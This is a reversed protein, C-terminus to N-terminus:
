PEWAPESWTAPVDGATFGLPLRMGTNLNVIEFQGFSVVLWQGDPSVDYALLTSSQNPPYPIGRLRAGDPTFVDFGSSTHAVLTDTKGLWKPTEHDAIKTTTGTQLDEIFVDVFPCCNYHVGTYAIYRGSASMVPSFCSNYVGNPSPSAITDTRSGDLRARAIRRQSTEGITYLVSADDASFAPDGGWGSTSAGNFPATVPREAGTAVDRVMIRGGYSGTDNVFALLNGAHSWAPSTATPPRIVSFASGDLNVRVIEPLQGPRSYVAALTGTPVVSVWASDRADVSALRILARGLGVGTVSGDSAITAASSDSALKATESTANGYADTAQVRLHYSRGVYVATDRPAPILHATRGAVVVFGATDPALGSHTSSLQLHVTTAVTGLKVALQVRGTSDTRFFQRGSPALALWRMSTDGVARVDAMEANNSFDSPVVSVMVDTFPVPQETSDYVTAILVGPLETRVSDHATTLPRQDIVIKSRAPGGQPKSGVGAATPTEGCGVVTAAGVLALLLLHHRNVLTRTAMNRSTFALSAGRADPNTFRASRESPPAGAVTRAIAWPGRM